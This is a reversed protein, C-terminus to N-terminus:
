TLLRPSRCWPVSGRATALPILLGSEKSRLIVASYGLSEQDRESGSATRCGESLQGVKQALGAPTGENRLTTHCQPFGCLGDAYYAAVYYHNVQGLRSLM